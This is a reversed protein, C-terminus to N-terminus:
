KMGGLYSETKDIHTTTHQIVKIVGVDKYHRKIANIQNTVNINVSCLFKTLVCDIPIIRNQIKVSSELIVLIMTEESIGTESESAWEFYLNYSKGSLTQCSPICFFPNSFSQQNLSAENILYQIGLINTEFEPMVKNNHHIMLMKLENDSYQKIQKM